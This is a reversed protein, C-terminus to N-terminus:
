YFSKNSRHLEMLYIYTYNEGRTIDDTHLEPLVATQYTFNVATYNGWTVMYNINNVSTYFRM